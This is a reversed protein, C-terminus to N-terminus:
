RKAGNPTSLELGVLRSVRDMEVDKMDAAEREVEECEVQRDRACTDCFGLEDAGLDPAEELYLRSCLNCHRQTM